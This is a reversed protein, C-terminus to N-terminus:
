EPDLFVFRVGCAKTQRAFYFTERASSSLFADQLCLKKELTHHMSASHGCDVSCTSTQVSPTLLLPFHKVIHEAM